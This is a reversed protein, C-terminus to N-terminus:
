GIKKQSEGICNWLLWKWRLSIHRHSIHRHCYNGHHAVSGSGYAMFVQLHFSKKVSESESSNFFHNTHCRYWGLYIKSSTILYIKFLFFINFNSSLSGCHFQPDAVSSHGLGLETLHVALVHHGAHVSDQIMHTVEAGPDNASVPFTRTKYIITLWYILLKEISTSITPACNSTLSCAFIM